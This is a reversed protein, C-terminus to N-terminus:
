EKEQESAPLFWEVIPFGRLFRTVPAKCVASYGPMARNPKFFDTVVLEALHWFGGAVDPVIAVLCIFLCLIMM